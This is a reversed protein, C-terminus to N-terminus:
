AAVAEFRTKVLPLAAGTKRADAIFEDVLECLERYLVAEDDGHIAMKLDPCRGIFVLDEESWEVFKAYNPNKM